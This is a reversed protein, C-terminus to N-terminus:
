AARDSCGPTMEADNKSTSYQDNDSSLATPVFSSQDYGSATTSVPNNSAITLPKNVSLQWHKSCDENDVDEKFVEKYQTSYSTEDDPDMDIGMEWKM